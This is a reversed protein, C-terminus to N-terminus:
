GREEQPAGAGQRINLASFLALGALVVSCVLTARFDGVHESAIGVAIVPITLGVYAALFYTSAVQGRRDSPALRNATALSSMFVLGAGMGGSVTGVAFIPYSADSLGGVILSLGVMMLGLGVLVAGRGQFRRLVVQTLTAVGFMLFVTAGAVAHSREHLVSSLFSPALASFLGLVTFATFGATAAAAFARRSDAPVGLGNFGLALPKRDAVTEPIAGLFLAAVILVVFYAYFVLVTPRPAFEALLGAVLPGLALGGMNSATAVLSALKRESETVLEALAATATGTILGAALGSLVWALFLLSVGPAVIFVVTSVAALVIAAAMVPRRGASDSARGAFVLAALVGIAYTAFILTVVGASFQWQGQYIVYLPTPLTTGLM